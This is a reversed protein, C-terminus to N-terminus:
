SNVWTSTKKPFTNGSRLLYRSSNLIPTFETESDEDVTDGQTVILNSKLKLEEERLEAEYVERYGEWKGDKGSAM